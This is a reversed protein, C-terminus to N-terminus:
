HGISVGVQEPRMRQTVPATLPRISQFDGAVIATAPVGTQRTVSQALTQAYNIDRRLLIAIGQCGTHEQLVIGIGNVDSQLSEKSVGSAVSLSALYTRSGFFCDICFSRADEIKM